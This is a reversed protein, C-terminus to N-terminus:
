RRAKPKRHRVRNPCTAFHSIHLPSDAVDVLRAGKPLVVAGVGEETWTIVGSPLVREGLEVPLQSRDVPKRDLPMAKGSELMTVWLIRTKCSRCSGLDPKM